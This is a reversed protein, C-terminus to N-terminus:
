RLLQKESKEKMLVLELQGTLGAVKQLLHEELSQLEEKMSQLALIQQVKFLETLKTEATYFHFLGTKMSTLPTILSLTKEM